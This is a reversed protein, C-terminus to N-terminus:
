PDKRKNDDKKVAAKFGRDKILEIIKKESIVKEDYWVVSAGTAYTTKNKIIGEQRSLMQDIGDACGAQCSMGEITLLLKTAKEDINETTSAKEQQQTQAKVGTSLLLSGLLCIFVVGKM